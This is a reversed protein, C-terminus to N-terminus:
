FSVTLAVGGYFFDKLLADDPHAVANSRLEWNYSLYAGLEVNDSVPVTASLTAAIQNAGDHGDSVYGENIGFVVAPELVLWPVVEFERVLSFEIISGGADFSFYWDVAPVIGCDFGTYAIGAGVENDHTGASTFQLHNYGLYCEFEGLKFGYELFANFEDYPGDPSFGYWAGLTFGRWGLEVATGFLSDGDLNDRGESVYRSDWAVSIAAAIVSDSEVQHHDHKRASQPHHHGSVGDAVSQAAAPGSVGTLCIGAWAALSVLGM